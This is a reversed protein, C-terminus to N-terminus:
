ETKIQQTIKDWVKRTLTIISGDKINFITVMDKSIVTHKKWKLEYQYLLMTCIDTSTIYKTNVHTHFSDNSYQEQDKDGFSFSLLSKHLQEKKTLVNKNNFTLKYDNGLLVTNPITSATLIFVNRKKGQILSIFNFSTNEYHIFFDNNSSYAEKIAKQRIEILDKELQTVQRRNDDVKTPIPIPDKDFEYHIMVEDLNHRGFFVTVIKDNENLYTVYGGLSDKISEYRSLMDDTAYWSGQELRYLLIGEELIQDTEKNQSFVSLDSFLFFLIFLYRM